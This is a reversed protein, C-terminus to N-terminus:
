RIGSVGKLKRRTVAPFGAEPVPRIGSLGKLERRALLDAKKVLRRSWVM